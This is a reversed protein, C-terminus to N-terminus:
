GSRADFFWGLARSYLQAVRNRPSIFVPVQGELNPSDWILCYLITIPEARIPCNLSQVAFQLGCIESLLMRVPFLIQDCTGCPYEIGLCIPQSVTLRLTVEFKTAFDAVNSTIDDSSGVTDKFIGLYIFLHLEWYPDTQVHCVEQVERKV